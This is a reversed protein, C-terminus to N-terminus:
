EAQEQEFWWDIVERAVPIALSADAGEEVLVTIVFSPEEYPAFGTFWSHNPRNSAWQATGTKGAVEVPASQLSQASGRTVTQRMADKIISATEQPVVQESQVEADRNLHPTIEVGDNAFIATSQAIQLPTALFDGQGIAAHYTDGIYWVENKAELKWEKSPLFGSAEGPIDIGTPSGFGFVAAYEMLREIGLGEFQDYGGGILYFFTNVSDAIAHYINTQGHGGARWDPFFWLGIGIGGTSLFSTTPTIIEEELAAAAFVPKITSGSPFEGAHARPFLPLNEDELYAQYAEQDIGKAFLNADFAPWSVLAYVEGTKPNLAVVSARSAETGEMRATLVTEIHAQLGVDITLHLNEGDVPNRKSVIREVHGLADVESTEEGFTGRLLTEYSQELGQKGIHDFKRYGAGQVREYETENIVGTYGLLHSLSPVQDTIYSRRSGVELAMGPFNNESVVFRMADEYRIDQALLVEEDRSEAQAVTTMVQQPDLALFESLQKLLERLEEERLPLQEKSSVINFTPVNEALIEGDRDYIIGRQAPITQRRIRNNEAQERFEQGHVIQLASARGVFVLLMAFVLLISIRFRQKPILFSVFSKAPEQASHPHSAFAEEFFDDDALHELPELEEIENISFYEHSSRKKKWFWM